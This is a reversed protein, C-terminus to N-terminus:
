LKQGRANEEPHHPHPDRPLQHLADQESDRAKVEGSKEPGRKDHPRDGHDRAEDGRTAGRADVRHNGQAGLSMLKVTRPMMRRNMM